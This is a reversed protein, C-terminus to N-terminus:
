ATASAPRRGRFLRTLSWRGVVDHTKRSSRALREAQAEALRENIRRDVVLKNELMEIGKSGTPSKMMAKSAISTLDL